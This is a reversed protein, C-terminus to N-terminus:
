GKGGDGEPDKRRASARYGHSLAQVYPIGGKRCGKEGEHGGHRELYERVEPGIFEPPIPEPPELFPGDPFVVGMRKLGRHGRLAEEMRRLFRDDIRKLPIWGDRWYHVAVERLERVKVTRIYRKGDSSLYFRRNWMWFGDLYEGQWGICGYGDGGLPIYGRRIMSEFLGNM